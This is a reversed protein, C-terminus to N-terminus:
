NKALRRTFFEDKFMMSGKIGSSGQYKGGEYSTIEGTVDHYIIQCVDVGAYIRLAHLVSIELTWRGDFGVDGVGACIHSQFGLRGTSSRGELMPAHKKTITREATAGLYLFNPLLVEGEEPIAYEFVENKKAMDLVPDLEDLEKEHLRYYEIIPHNRRYNIGKESMVTDIWQRIHCKYIALNPGLTLNYSNPNIKTPDFNDIFINGNVVEEIIQKGTLIM